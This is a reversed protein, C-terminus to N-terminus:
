LTWDRGHPWREVAWRGLLAARERISDPNWQGWQKAVTRPTTFMSEALYREKKDSYPGRQLSGNLSRSLPILNAWTHRFKHHEEATFSSAWESGKERSNPLIHEITPKSPPHDGPIDRDYEVLLYNCIGTAALERVRIAEIIEENNPWQITPRRRIVAAVNDVALNDEVEYWLSKFVAHLGTPEFGVIARRVLFSEVLDMIGLTLELPMQDAEFEYLLKMLFPYVSSPCSLRHMRDVRRNVEHHGLERGQDLAMFPRCYPSMHAIIDQPNRDKWITRLERFLESKKANARHILCYPFFFQEARGDFGAEFPEWVDHYLRIALGPQEAVQSFVENRALDVIGVREGRYNLREFIRTATGGDTLELLVFTFGQTVYGLLQELTALCDSDEQSKLEKRLYSRIRAYQRTLRGASEGSLALPPQPSDKGLVELVDSSARLRDWLSAFQLRDKYCPIIRTNVELGKRHQILLLLRIIEAARTADYKAILEVIAMVFMYLTLLRQQGDVVDVAKPRGVVAPARPRQCSVIAGLFQIDDVDDQILRLDRKFDDLHKKTWVYERQFVPIHVQDVDRFLGELTLEDQSDTIGETKM